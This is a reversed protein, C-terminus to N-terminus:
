KLVAAPRPATAPTPYDHRDNLDNIPVERPIVAHGAVLAAPLAVKSKEEGQPVRVSIKATDAVTAGNRGVVVAPVLVDANPPINALRLESRAIGPAQFAITVKGPPVDLLLFSGNEELGGSVFPADDVWVAAMKILQQRRASAVIPDRPLDSSPAPQEIDLIWGRISVPTKSLQPENSKKGGECASMFVAAIALAISIRRM